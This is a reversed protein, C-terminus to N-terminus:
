VQMRWAVSPKVYGPRVKSKASGYKTQLEQHFGYRRRASEEHSGDEHRGDEYRCLM